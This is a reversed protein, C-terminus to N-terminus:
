RQRARAQAREDPGGAGHPVVRAGTGRGPTAPDGVRDRGRTRRPRHPVGRRAGRRARQAAGPRGAVRRRGPPDRHARRPRAARGAAACVWVAVAQTRGDRVTMALWGVAAVGVLALVALGWGTPAPRPGARLMAVTQLVLFLLSRVQRWRAVAADTVTFVTGTE